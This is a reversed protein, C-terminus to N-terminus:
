NTRACQNRQGSQPRKLIGSRSLVSGLYEVESQAFQCKEKRCRVGKELLILLLRKLNQLHDERNTGSVLIDDLYIAVGPLDKTIYDM